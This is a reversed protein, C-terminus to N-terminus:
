ATEQSEAQFHDSVVKLIIGHELYAKLASLVLAWGETQGAIQEVLNEDDSEFGSEVVRLFTNEETQSEFSIDVTRQSTGDEDAPWHFRILHNKYVELVTIDAKLDFQEWEWTVTGGSELRDSGKTFWFKSTIDPNVLAEFVENVPKRILMGSRAALKYETNM